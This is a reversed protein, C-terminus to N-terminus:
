SNKVVAVLFGSIGSSYYVFAYFIFGLTLFPHQAFKKWNKLLSKRLPSMQVIGVGRNVMLFERLTKGYYFQKVMIERLSRPEGLHIEQSDIVGVKFGANILRNYFDYDEGLVMNENFDGIMLIIDKRFFRAGSHFSDYKYCDKELKRVKAWFSIDPDPPCLVSVADYGENECKNVAEQILDTDLVLDSDVRYVYKGRSMKIGVNTASTREQHHLHYQDCGFKRAIERTRDQSKKSEVVIVEVPFYSQNEISSLCKELTDESNYVPIVVSVLPQTM